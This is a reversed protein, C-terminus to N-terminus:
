TRGAVVAAHRMKREELMTLIQQDADTIKGDDSFTDALDAEDFGYIASSKRRIPKPLGDEDVLDSEVRLVSSYDDVDTDSDDSDFPNLDVPSMEPLYIAPKRVVQDRANRRWVAAHFFPMINRIKAWKAAADFTKCPEEAITVATDAADEDAEAMADLLPLTQRRAKRTAAVMHSQRRVRQARGSSLLIGVDLVAERGGLIALREALVDLASAFTPRAAPDTAVARALLAALCPDSEEPARLRDGNHVKTLKALLRVDKGETPAYPEMGLTLVEWICVGFSWCDTSEDYFPIEDGEVPINEGRTVLPPFCEPPTWLMPIKMQGKLRFGSNGEDYKRTLGFDAVKVLSNEGILLNRTALDMHCFKNAHMYKLADAVQLMFCVQELAGIEIEKKKATMM